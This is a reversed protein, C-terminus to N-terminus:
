GAPLEAQRHALRRFEPEQAGGDALAIGGAREDFVPAVIELLERREFDRELLVAAALVIENGYRELAGHRFDPRQLQPPLLALAIVAPLEFQVDAFSGVSRRCRETVGKRM